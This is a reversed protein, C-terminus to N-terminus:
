FRHQFGYINLVNASMFYTAKPFGSVLWFVPSHKQSLWSFGYKPPITLLSQNSLVVLPLHLFIRFIPCNLFFGSVPCCKDPFINEGYKKKWELELFAIKPFGYKHYSIRIQSDPSAKFLPSWSSHDINAYELIPRNSIRFFPLEIFFSTVPCWKDPFFIEGYFNNKWESEFFAM